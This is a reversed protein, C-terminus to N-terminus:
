QAQLYMVAATGINPGDYTITLLDQSSTLLIPTGLTLVRPEYLDRIGDEDRDGLEIEDGAVDFLNLFEVVSAAEFQIHRSPSVPDILASVFDPFSAASVPSGSAGTFTRLITVSGAPISSPDLTLASLRNILMEGQLELGLASLNDWRVLKDTVLMDESPLLGTQDLGTHIPIRAILSDAGGTDEYCYEFLLQYEVVKRWNGTGQIFAPDSSDALTITLFGLSKLVDLQSSVLDILLQADLEVAEPTAGMFSFRVRADIREGKLEVLKLSGVSRNGRFNGLGVPKVTFGAISFTAGPLQSQLRARLADLLDNQTPMGQPVSALSSASTSMPAFRSRVSLAASAPEPLQRIDRSKLFKQSQLEDQSKRKFINQFRGGFM